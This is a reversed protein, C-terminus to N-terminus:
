LGLAKPSLEAIRSDKVFLSNWLFIVNNINLPIHAYENSFGQIIQARNMRLFKKALDIDGNFVSAIDGRVEGDVRIRLKLVLMAAWNGAKYHHHALDDFIKSMGWESAELTAVVGNLVRSLDDRGEWYSEQKYRLDHEVEHWGESLVTRIQVEFTRDIAKAGIISDMQARYRDPISFILNHRTVSFQDKEPASINSDADRHAFNSCLIRQAVDIDDSFYLVVRIGIADQVRKGDISYKPTLNDEKLSGLKGDLSGRSKGRHFLRFMVGARSFIREIDEALQNALFDFDSSRMIRAGFDAYNGENKEYEGRCM